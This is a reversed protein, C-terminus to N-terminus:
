IIWKLVAANVVKAPMGKQVGTKIGNEKIYEGLRENKSVDLKQGEKYHDVKPKGEDDLVPKGESDTKPVSFDEKAVLKGTKYNYIRQGGETLLAMAVGGGLMSVGTATNGASEESMRTVEAANSVGNHVVGVGAAILKKPNMAHETLKRSEQVAIDGTDGVNAVTKTGMAINRVGDVNTIAYGTVPNHATTTRTDGIYGQENKDMGSSQFVARGRTWDEGPRANGKEDLFGYDEHGSKLYKAETGNDRHQKREENVIKQLAEPNNSLDLAAKQPATKQIAM